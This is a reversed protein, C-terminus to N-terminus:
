PTGIKSQVGSVIRALAPRTLLRTAFVHVRNRFGPVVERKGAMMGRYGAAAVDAASGSLLISRTFLPVGRLGARAQFGTTTPGPCLATATVATGRLEEALAHTFSLVYAKSAYYIAMYPGPQFAATSAVNLIRGQGRALMGPLCLRTLLTLAVMNVQMLESAATLDAGALPGHIAFGANNVLTDIALSRREMERYLEEPAEPRALDLPLVLSAAGHRAELEVALSRLADEHRAVLVLDHGGQACCIALERGIGSSAGTVLARPRGSAPPRNM